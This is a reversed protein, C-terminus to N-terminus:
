GSRNNGRNQSSSQAQLRYQFEAELSGDQSMQWYMQKWYLVKGYQEITAKVDPNKEDHYAAAMLPLAQANNMNALENAASKRKDASHAEQLLKIWMTIDTDSPRPPPTRKISMGKRVTGINSSAMDAGAAMGGTFMASGMAAGGIIAGGLAAGTAFGLKKNAADHKRKMLTLETQNQMEQILREEQESAYNEIERNLGFYQFIEDITNYNRQLAAHLRKGAWAAMEKIAPHPAQAYCHKVDNMLRTEEVFGVLQLAKLQIAPKPHQLGNKLQNLNM